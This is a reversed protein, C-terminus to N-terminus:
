SLSDSEPVLQPIDRLNNLITISLGSSLELDEINLYDETWFVQLDDSKWVFLDSFWVDEVLLWERKNAKTLYQIFVTVVWVFFFRFQFCCKIETHWVYALSDRGLVGGTRCITVDTVELNVTVGEPLFGHSLGTDRRVGLWGSSPAIMVWYGLPNGSVKILGNDSHLCWHLMYRGDHRFMLFAWPIDRQLILTCRTTGELCIRPSETEERYSPTEKRARHYYCQQTSSLHWTARFVCHVHSSVYANLFANLAVLSLPFM